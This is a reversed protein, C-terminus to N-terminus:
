ENEEKIYKSFSGESKLKGEEADEIGQRVDSLAEKNAFLWRERAPIEVRPELVLRGSKDRSVLFSSIGNALKGLTIRGKSDPRVAFPNEKKM